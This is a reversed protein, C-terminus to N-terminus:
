DLHVVAILLIYRYSAAVYQIPQVVVNDPIGPGQLDDLDFMEKLKGKKYWTCTKSMSQHASLGQTTLFGRGCAGCTDKKLLDELCIKRKGM